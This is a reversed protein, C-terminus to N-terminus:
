KKKYDKLRKQYLSDNAFHIHNVMCYDPCYYKSSYVYKEIIGNKLVYMEEPQSKTNYYWSSIALIIILIIESSGM